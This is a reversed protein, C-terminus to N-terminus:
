GLSGACGFAAATLLPTDGHVVTQRREVDNDNDDDDNEHFEDYDEDSDDSYM